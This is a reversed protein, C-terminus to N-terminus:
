GDKTETSTWWFHKDLRIQEVNYMKSFVYNIMPLYKFITLLQHASPIYCSYGKMEICSDLENCRKLVPSCEEMDTDKLIKLMRRCNIYGSVNDMINSEYVFFKPDQINKDFITFMKYNEHSIFHNYGIYILIESDAQRLTDSSLKIFIPPILLEDLECLSIETGDYLVISLAETTDLKTNFIDEHNKNFLDYLEDVSIKPIYECDIDSQSFDIDQDTIDTSLVNYVANDIAELIKKKM